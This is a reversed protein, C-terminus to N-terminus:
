GKQGPGLSLRFWVILFLGGLLSDKVFKTLGGMLENTM